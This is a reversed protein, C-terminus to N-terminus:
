HKFSTVGLTLNPHVKCGFKRDFKRGVKSGYYLCPFSIQFELTEHEDILNMWNDLNSKTCTYSNAESNTSESSVSGAKM